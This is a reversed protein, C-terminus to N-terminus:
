ELFWSTAIGVERQGGALFKMGIPQTGQRAITLVCVPPLQWDPQRRFAEMQAIKKLEVIGEKPNSIETVVSAMAQKADLSGLSFRLRM